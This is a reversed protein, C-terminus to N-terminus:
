VRVKPAFITCYAITYDYQTDWICKNGEIRNGKIMSLRTLEKGINQAMYRRHISYPIRRKKTRGEEEWETLHGKGGLDQTIGGRLGRARVTGVTCRVVCVRRSLIVPEFVPDM